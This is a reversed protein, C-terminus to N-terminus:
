GLRERWTSKLVIDGDRAKRWAELWVLGAATGQAPRYECGVYGQYGLMDLRRLVREDDLEGTGPEHRGPVSAIQVHGIIPWLAELSTLVDGHMIQRHYIDFQLKLRTLGLEAIIEAAVDFSSLFYGPNDRLNLPEILVDVDALTEVAYRLANKFAERSRNDKPDAVGAMVHVRRAGTAAAYLQAQAIQQRFEPFRDPLAALGRDGAALDGPPANFLALTLGAEEVRKAITEASYEYPFQFEVAQFGHEAAAAFRDLFPWEMFMLSINAAFQLM